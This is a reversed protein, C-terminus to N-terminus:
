NGVLLTLLRLLLLLLLLSLLRLLTLLRLYLLLLLRLLLLSSGPVRVWRESRLPGLEVLLFEWGKGWGFPLNPFAPMRLLRPLALHSFLIVSLKNLRGYV